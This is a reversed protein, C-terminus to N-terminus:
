LHVGCGLGNSSRGLDILLEVTCRLRRGPVAEELPPAMGPPSASPKRTNHPGGRDAGVALSGLEAQGAEAQSVQFVKRNQLIGNAAAEAVVAGIAAKQQGQEEVLDSAVM